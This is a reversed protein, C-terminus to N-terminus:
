FKGIKKQKMQFQPFYNCLMKSISIRNMQENFEIEKRKQAFM